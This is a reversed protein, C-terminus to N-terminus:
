RQLHNARERDQIGTTHTQQGRARSLNL